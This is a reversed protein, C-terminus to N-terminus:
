LSVFYATWKTVNYGPEVTYQIILYLLCICYIGTINHTLFICLVEVSTIVSTSLWVNFL